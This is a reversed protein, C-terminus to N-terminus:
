RQRQRAEHQQRHCQGHAAEAGRQILRIHTVAVVPSIYSEAAIGPLQLVATGADVWSRWAGLRIASHCSKESLSRSVTYVSRGGSPQRLWRSSSNSVRLFRSIREHCTQEIQLFSPLLIRPGLRACKAPSISEITKM